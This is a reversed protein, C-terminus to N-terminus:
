IVGLNGRNGQVPVFGELFYVFKNPLFLFALSEPSVSLIGPMMSIEHIGPFDWKFFPKELIM